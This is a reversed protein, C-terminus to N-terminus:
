FSLPLNRLFGVMKLFRVIISIEFINKRMNEEEEGSQDRGGKRKEQQAM